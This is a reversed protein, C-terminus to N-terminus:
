PERDLSVILNRKSLHLCYLEALELHTILLIATGDRYANIVRQTAAAPSLPLLATLTDITFQKDHVEDDHLLVRWKPLSDVQRFSPSHPPKPDDPGTFHGEPNSM